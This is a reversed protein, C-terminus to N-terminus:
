GNAAHQLQGYQKDVFVAFAADGPHKEKLETMNFEIIDLAAARQEQGVAQLRKGFEGPNCLTLKTSSASLERINYPHGFGEDPEKLYGGESLVGYITNAKLASNWNDGAENALDHFTDDNNYVNRLAGESIGMQKATSYLADLPEQVYCAPVGEINPDKPLQLAQYTGNQMARIVKRYVPDYKAPSYEKMSELTYVTDSANTAFDRMANDRIVGCAETFLRKEEASVPAEEGQGLLAHSYEHKIIESVEERPMLSSAPLFAYVSPDGKGGDAYDHPVFMMQGGETTMRYTPDGNFVRFHLTKVQGSKMAPEILAKDDKVIGLLESQQETLETLHNDYQLKGHGDM